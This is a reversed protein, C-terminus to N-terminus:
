PVCVVHQHGPCAPCAPCARCVRCLPRSVEISLLCKNLKDFTRDPSIELDNNVVFMTVLEPRAYFYRWMLNMMKTLGMNQLKPPQMVPLGMAEVLVKTDDESMDDFVVIHMNDNSALLQGLLKQTRVWSKCCTTVGVFICDVCPKGKNPGTTTLVPGLALDPGV